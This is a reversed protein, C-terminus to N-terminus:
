VRLAEDRVLFEEGKIFIAGIDEPDTIELGPIGGTLLFTAEKGEEISGLRDGLGLVDAPNQTLMALLTNENYGLKKLHVFSPNALAMLHHPGYVFGPPEPLWDAEPHKPLYADSSISVPVGCAVALAVDEPSNPKASTGGHCTAVLPIKNEGMRQALSRDLGHGHHIVDGGAELFQAIVEVGEVHAGVKKGKNHFINVFHRIQEESFCAKGARPAMEKPLNAVTANLLLNEGAFDSSDAMFEIHEDTLDELSLVKGSAYSSTVILNETGIVCFGAAVQTYGPYHGNGVKKYESVPTTLLPHGLQHEGTAVIGAKRATFINAVAAMMQGNSTVKHVGDTAFEMLHTHCDVLGPCLVKGQADLRKRAPSGALEEQTAVKAFIGDKIAVAGKAITGNDSVTVILANEVILDYLLM